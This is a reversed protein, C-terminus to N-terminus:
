RHQSRQCPIRPAKTSGFSELTLKRGNGGNGILIGTISFSSPIQYQKLLLFEALPFYFLKGNPSEVTTFDGGINNPIHDHPGHELAVNFQDFTTQALIHQLALPSFPEGSFSKNYQRGFGRSL